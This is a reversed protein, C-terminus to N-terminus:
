AQRFRLFVLCFRRDWGLKSEAIPPRRCHSETWSSCWCRRLNRRLRRSPLPQAAAADSGPRKRLVALSLRITTETLVIGADNQYWDLGSEIGGPYSQMLLRHGTEPKIDIM